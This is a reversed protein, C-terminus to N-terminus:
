LGKSTLQFAKQNALKFLSALEIEGHQELMQAMNLWNDNKSIWDYPLSDILLQALTFVENSKTADRLLFWLKKLMELDHIDIGQEPLQEAQAASLDESPEFSDM